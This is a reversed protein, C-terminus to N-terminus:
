NSNSNRYKIFRVKKSRVESKPSAPFVAFLLVAATTFGGSERKASTLFELRCATIRLVPSITKSVCRSRLLSADKPEAPRLLASMALMSSQPRGEPATQKEPSLTAM